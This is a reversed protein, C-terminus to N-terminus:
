NLEREGVLESIARRVEEALTTRDAFDQGAATHPAGIVVDISARRPLYSGPRVIDRTGRIGVPIVPCGALAAVTFAGLQFRRLGVGATMSGEPFVALRKGARVVKVLQELDRASEEPQGRHVFVSGLRRLLTGALRQREFDTSSVFVVPEPMALVLALGDVFSPHNSAIVAASNGAPPEGVVRIGIGAAAALARGSARTLRWRAKMTLPLLLCLWTAGGILGVLAWTWIAYLLEDGRRL